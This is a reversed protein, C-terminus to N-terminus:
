KETSTTTTQLKNNYHTPMVASQKERNTVQMVSDLVKFALECLSKLDSGGQTMWISKDFTYTTKLLLFKGEVEPFYGFLFAVGKYITKPSEQVARVM